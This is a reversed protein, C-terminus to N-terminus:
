GSSAPMVTVLPAEGRRETLKITYFRPIVMVSREPDTNLIHQDDLLHFSFVLKASFHRQPEVMDCQDRDTAVQNVRPQQTPTFSRPNVRVMGFTQVLNARQKGVPRQPFRPQLLLSEGQNLLVIVM